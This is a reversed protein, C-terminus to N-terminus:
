KYKVNIEGSVDLYDTSDSANILHAVLMAHINFLTSDIKNITVTASGRRPRATYSGGDVNFIIENDTTAGMTYTGKQVDTLTIKLQNASGSEDGHIVYMAGDQELGKSTYLHDIGLYKCSVFSTSPPPTKSCSALVCVLALVPLVSLLRM